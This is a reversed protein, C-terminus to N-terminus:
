IVFSFKKQWFEMNLLPKSNAGAVTDTASSTCVGCTLQCDRQAWSKNCKGKRKAKNAM